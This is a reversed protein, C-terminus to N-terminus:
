KEASSSSHDAQQTQMQTQMQMQMQQEFVGMMSDSQKKLQDVAQSKLTHIRTEAAIQEFLISRLAAETRRATSATEAATLSFEALCTESATKFAGLCSSLQPDVAVESQALPLISQFGLIEDDEDSYTEEDATPVSTPPFRAPNSNSNFQVM